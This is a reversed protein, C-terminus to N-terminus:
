PVVEMPPLANSPLSANPVTNAKVGSGYRVARSTKAPGVTISAGNEFDRRGAARQSRQVTEAGLGPHV